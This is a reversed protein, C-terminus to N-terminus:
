NKRVYEKTSILQAGAIISVPFEILSFIFSILAPKLPFIGMNVHNVTFLVIVLIVFFSAILATKSGEGFKPCLCVYLWITITCTCLLYLINVIEYRTGTVVINAFYQKALDVETFDFILKVAGEFFFEIILFVISSSIGAILIRGMNIKKM